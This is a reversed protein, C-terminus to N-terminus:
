KIHLVMGMVLSEVLVQPARNEVDHFVHSCLYFIEFQRSGLCVGVTSVLCVSLILLQGVTTASGKRRVFCPVWSVSKLFDSRSNESCNINKLTCSCCAYYRTNGSVSSREPSQGKIQHLHCVKRARVSPKETCARLRRPCRTYYYGTHWWTRYLSAPSRLPVQCFRIGLQGCLQYHSM